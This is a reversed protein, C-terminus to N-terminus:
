GRHGVDWGSSKGNDSTVKMGQAGCELRLIEWDSTVKMGQAGCGLRPNRMTM